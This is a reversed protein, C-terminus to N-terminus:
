MKFCYRQIIIYEPFKIYVNAQRPFRLSFELCTFMFYQVVKGCNQKYIVHLKCTIEFYVFEGNAMLFVYLM